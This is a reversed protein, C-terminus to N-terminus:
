GYSSTKKVKPSQEILTVVMSSRKFFSGQGDTFTSEDAGGNKVMRLFKRRRWPLRSETRGSHVMPYGQANTMQVMFWKKM